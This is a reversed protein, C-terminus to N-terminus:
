HEDLGGDVTELDAVETAPVKELVRTENNYGWQMAWEWFGADWMWRMWTAFILTFMFVSGFVGKGCDRTCTFPGVFNLGDSPFCGTWVWFGAVAITIALVKSPGPFSPLRLDMAMNM